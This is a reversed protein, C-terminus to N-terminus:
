RGVSSMAEVASLGATALSATLKVLVSKRLHRVSSESLGLLAAIERVTMEEKYYYTLVEREKQTLKSVATTLIDVLQLRIAESEPTRGEPVPANAKDGVQTGSTLLGAGRLDLVIRRWSESSVGLRAAIEDDTPHRDLERALQRITQEVQQHSRRLDRSAWDLERLSNLISGKVRHAAYAVFDVETM